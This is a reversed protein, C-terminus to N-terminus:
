QSKWSGLPTVKQIVRESGTWFNDVLEQDQSENSPGGLQKPDTFYSGNEWDPSRADPAVLAWLASLSGQDPRRMFPRTVAGMVAGVTEGYAPKFQDQQGTAVAGPHTAFVLVKSPPQIHRQLLGKTFLLVCAKTRAYLNSPGIDESFEKDNAFKGGFSGPGGFTARHLESSMSVIRVDAGPLKSTKELVPLLHSVLLHHSLNNLTLHSDLGDKTLEFANVGKGAICALLDLRELKGALSKAVEGTQKLDELNVQVFEVKGTKEGGGSTDEGKGFGEAYDNPADSLNGSKIYAVGDKGTKESSSLVYLSAGHTYMTRALSLAIGNTGGTIVAVKGTLDPCDKPAYGYDGFLTEKVILPVMSAM